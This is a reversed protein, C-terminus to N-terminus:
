KVEFRAVNERTVTDLAFVQGRIWVETVDSRGVVVSLPLVGSVGVNVGPEVIRRLQVVGQADTVEVWSAAKTRLTLVGSATATVPKIVEPQPTAAPMPSLVPSRVPPPAVAVAVTESAASLAPLAAVLVSVPVPAQPEVESSVLKLATKGEEDDPFFLLAFAGLLLLLVGALVPKPFQNWLADHTVDGPGRFPVNMGADETWLRPSQTQPLRALVPAPDIKLARCVSSALARTFAADPLLDLRNAELAELKKVPVRIMVALAAIHLGVRERAQRLLAGANEAPASDAAQEPAGPVHTESM